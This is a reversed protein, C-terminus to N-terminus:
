RNKKSVLSLYLEELLPNNCHTFEEIQIHMNIDDVFPLACININEFHYEIRRFTRMFKDSTNRSIYDHEQYKEQLFRTKEEPQLKQSKREYMLEKANWRVPLFVPLVIDNLGLEKFCSIALLASILTAPTIGKLNEYDAINDDSESSLDIGENVKYLQRNLKKDRNLNKKNQIAYIYVKNDSIGFHVIPMENDNIKIMLYLPTEQEVRNHHISLEITGLSTYVLKQFNIQNELFDIRIKLYNEPNIFDESTANSWLLSLITKIYDHENLEEYRTDLYFSYALHLYKLLLKDFLDKNKITLTPILIRGISNALVNILKDEIITNFLINYTFYAEIKGERAEKVIENYFINLADM